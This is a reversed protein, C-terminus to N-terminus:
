EERLAFIMALTVGVVTFYVGLDFLMPTGLKAHGILPLNVETWASLFVERGMIAGVLGSLLAIGLGGAILMGPPVRLLKRAAGADHAMGYLAYAAAALLGGAFGGGPQNHGLLLLLVSFLLLLPLMLRTTTRLIISNM